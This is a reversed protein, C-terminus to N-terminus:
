NLPEVILIISDIEIVKVTTGIRIIENDKTSSKWYDGDIKVRGTGRIPNIEETVIGTKNILADRNTKIKNKRYGYKNIVPRILFYTLAVGLAFLLIQWKTEIGLYTGIAAFFLGIGISGFIFGTTFIEVIFAIIGLTVLIQWTEM